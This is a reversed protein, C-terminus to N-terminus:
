CLEALLDRFAALEREPRVLYATEDCRRRLTAYFEAETEARALLLALARTDGVPFYGPYDEGLTGVLGPIRSAVVPVSSALAECLSNSSGEMVSTVALLHSGAIWRRTEAYPLEGLWRYRPNEKSALRAGDEMEPALARGLHFVRIRSSAPLERAALETRFPDKEPRLNGVVAVRFEGEAPPIVGDPPEASQYIVRAKARQEPSLEVLGQKQLVVLRTALQLSEKADPDVRIDRYLDTGTLAVVLPLAPYADRFRRVSAHSRRAHLAVFLDCPEGDYEFALRATHGLRELVGAWRRATVRNGTALEAPAGAGEPRPTVIAIRM